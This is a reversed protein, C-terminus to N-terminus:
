PATQVYVEGGVGPRRRGRAPVRVGERDVRRVLAAHAEVTVDVDRHDVPPVVELLLEVHVVAVLGERRAAPELERAAVRVVLHDPEGVRAGGHGEVLRGLGELQDVLPHRVQAGMGREAHRSVARRAGDVAAELGVPRLDRAPRVDPVADEVVQRRARAGLAEREVLARPDGRATRDLAADELAEELRHVVRDRGADVAGPRRARGLPRAQERDERFAHAVPAAAVGAARIGSGTADGNASPAYGTPPSFNVVCAGGAPLSFDRVCELYQTLFLNRMPDGRARPKSESQRGAETGAGPLPPPIADTRRFRRSVSWSVSANPARTAPGARASPMPSSM